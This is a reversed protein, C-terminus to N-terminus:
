VVRELQMGPSSRRGPVMAYLESWPKESTAFITGSIELIRIHTSAIGSVPNEAPRSRSVLVSLDARRKLFDILTDQPAVAAAGTAETIRDWDVVVLVPTKAEAVKSQLSGLSDVRGTIGGTHPDWIEVEGSASAGLAAKLQSVSG